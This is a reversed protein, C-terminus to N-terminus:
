DEKEYIMKIVVGDRTETKRLKGFRYILTEKQGLMTITITKGDQEWKGTLTGGLTGDAKLVYRVNESLEELLDEYVDLVNRTTNEVYDEDGALAQMVKAAEVLAEKEEDTVDKAWKISVEELVYSRGGADCSTLTLMMSCLCLMALILSVLKKMKM